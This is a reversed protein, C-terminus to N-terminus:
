AFSSTRLNNRWGNLIKDVNYDLEDESRVEIDYAKGIHVTQFDAQASGIPRDGRTAERTILVDLRCHIGVFYM